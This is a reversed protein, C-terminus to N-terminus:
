GQNNVMSTTDAVPTLCGLVSGLKALEENGSGNALGEMEIDM